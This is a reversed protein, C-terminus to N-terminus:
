TFLFFADVDLVSYALLLGCGSGEEDEGEAM